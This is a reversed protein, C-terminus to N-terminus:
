SKIEKKSIMVQSNSIVKADKLNVGGEGQLCSQWVNPMKSILETEKTLVGNLAYKLGGHIIGQSKITQGSGLKNNELLIADYGLNNLYNLAWLGAIGGGFIIIDATLKKSKQDEM